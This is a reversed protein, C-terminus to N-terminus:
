VDDHEGEGETIFLHTPGANGYDHLSLPVEVARGDRPLGKGLGFSLFGVAHELDQEVDRGPKSTVDVAIVVTLTRVQRKPKGIPKISTGPPLGKSWGPATRVAM